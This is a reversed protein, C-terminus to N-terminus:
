CPPVCSTETEELFDELKEERAQDEDQNFHCPSLGAYAELLPGDKDWQM